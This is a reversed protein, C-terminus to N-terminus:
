SYNGQFLGRVPAGRSVMLQNPVAVKEELVPVSGQTKPQAGSSATPKSQPDMKYSFHM